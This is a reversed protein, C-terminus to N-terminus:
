HRILICKMNKRTTILAHTKGYWTIKTTHKGKEINFWKLM